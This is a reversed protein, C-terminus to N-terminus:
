NKITIIVILRITENRFSRLIKKLFNSYTKKCDRLIRWIVSLNKSEREAGNEGGGWERGGEKTLFNSM